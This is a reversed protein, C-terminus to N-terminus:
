DKNLGYTFLSMTIINLFLLTIIYDTSTAMNYMAVAGLISVNLTKNRYIEELGLLFAVALFLYILHFM